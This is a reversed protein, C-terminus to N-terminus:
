QCPLKELTKDSRSDSTEELTHRREFDKYFIGKLIFGFFSPRSVQKKQGGLRPAWVLIMREVFFIGPKKDFVVKDGAKGKERTGVSVWPSGDSWDAHLTM